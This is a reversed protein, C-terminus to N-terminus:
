ELEALFDKTIEVPDDKGIRPNDKMRFIRISKKHEDTFNLKSFYNKMERKVTFAVAPFDFVQVLYIYSSRAM